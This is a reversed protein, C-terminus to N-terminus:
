HSDTIRVFVVGHDPIDVSYSGHFKGLDKREWLDRVTTDEHLGIDAFKVAASV